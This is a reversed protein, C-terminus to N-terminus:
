RGVTVDFQVTVRDGVRMTGMLATPARMGFQSMSVPASGTFRYRGNGLAQGQVNMQIANTAGAIALNGTSAVTFADGQGATVNANTLTFRINPHEEHKLTERLKGNMTGNGCEIASIPVTVTLATIGTLANASEQVTFSGNYNQVTCNWGRVNSTGDIRMTSGRQVTLQASATHALMLACVILLSSIRSMPLPYMQLSLFRPLISNLASGASIGM